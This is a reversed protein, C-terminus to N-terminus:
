YVVNLFQANSINIQADQFIYLYCYLKGASGSEKTIQLRIGESTNELRRGSSHLRNDDITRFDLWLAYKDTYYSTINVNHLQLDKQIAGAEKLRGEAFHKMIEDYQHYYQMSQSYLENLSGEVSIEVKTIKPNFFEETDRSFKTASREKTFILLVGKLSKSLSNIDVSFSTDSNNLPIIRTRLIRDSLITSKMYETRIQCALSANTVTDFELSINSITYTADPDTAKIVDSYDAFTLEYTLCSGLGYHYLPLTSELIEFDLPICFRNDYISAVTQDKANNAKDTTNIRHKIADETQGDAEFIGQFVANRSETTCKWCDYYSYLIDYDDISIIENGELKVVLERIINRGLNKVLTRNVDTGVLSINFTLKTTSPIIVQNEKLDTFHVTLLKDPGITSPNSTKIIHVHNGKLSFGKRYSRQSNLKDGVEMSIRDSLITSKMYETRIQCALSANTVTDFELSINSITYTADPDTAKIVDSYDAFTLEYTLCSGLGYHYLPLTSELIEFDLPICFRNDYISAVTQDKANNAKDTTNIRHKIADETQGDAEFIGQFVANRSETTCKWCDYYSYLIDYDDISIIENGELKVVLERIINRGLNKVLTRNVDTGVLSINFTLKTTSPIIVQNEKLDTFHVTLLKDPGITSPNSTKIIHVHNGKLSFGKRYSRQSNLKDGVEM